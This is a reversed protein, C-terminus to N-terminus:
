NVEEVTIKIDNLGSKNLFTKIRYLMIDSVYPDLGHSIATKYPISSEDLKEKSQILVFKHKNGYEQNLELVAQATTGSGAFFDCVVLSEGPYIQILYKILEVPKPTDFLDRLGLNNLDNTGQRSYFDLISPVHDKAETLYTIEYPRDGRFFLRGDKHLQKFRDDSTWGRTALPELHLNIEPLDVIRPSGPTSLDKGFFVDGDDSIRNYNKLWTINHKECNQKILSMLIKQAEKMGKSDFTNKVRRVIDKIMPGEILDDIRLREFRPVMMKNKAYGVIYEHITNIHKSNSRQAQKTIFVGLFNKEGFIEDCMVKLNAFQNDDISIFIVGTSSLIDRGLQLRPKMMNKWASNSYEFDKYSKRQTTNYPPDIYIIDISNKLIKSKTQLVKENDGIYIINEM